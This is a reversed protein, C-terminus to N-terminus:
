APNSFWRAAPLLAPLPFPPLCSVWYPSPNTGTRLVLFSRAAASSLSAMVLPEVVRFLPSSGAVGLSWTLNYFSPPHISFGDLNIAVHVVSLGLCESSTPTGQPLAWLGPFSMRPSPVLSLSLPSPPLRSGLWSGKPIGAACM